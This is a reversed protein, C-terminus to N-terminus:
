GAGGLYARVEVITEAVDPCPWGVGMVCWDCYQRAATSVAEHRRIMRRWRDVAALIGAAPDADLLALIEASM